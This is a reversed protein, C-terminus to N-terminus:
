LSVNREGWVRAREGRGCVSTVRTVRTDRALSPNSLGILVLPQKTQTSITPHGGSTVGQLVQDRPPLPAQQKINWFERTSPTPNTEYVPLGRCVFSKRESLKNM